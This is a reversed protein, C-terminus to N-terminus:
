CLGAWSPNTCSDQRHDVLMLDVHLAPHHDLLYAVKARNITVINQADWRAASCCETGAFRGDSGERRKVILAIRIRRDHKRRVAHFNAGTAAGPRLFHATCSENTILHRKAALLAEAHGLVASRPVRGLRRTETEQLLEFRLLVIALVARPDLVRFLGDIFEKM